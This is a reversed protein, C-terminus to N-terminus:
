HAETVHLESPIVWITGDDFRVTANRGQGKAWHLDDEDLTEHLYINFPARTNIDYEEFTTARAAALRDYEERDSPSLEEISGGHRETFADVSSNAKFWSNKALAYRLFLSLFRDKHRYAILEEQSKSLDPQQEDLRRNLSEIEGDKVALETDKTALEASKSKLSGDAISSAVFYGLSFTAAVVGILSGAVKWFQGVTMRNIIDGIAIAEPKAPLQEQSTM